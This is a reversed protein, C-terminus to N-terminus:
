FTNLDSNFNYMKIKYLRLIFYLSIYIYLRPYAIMNEIM